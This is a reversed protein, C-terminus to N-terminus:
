RDAGSTQRENRGAGHERAASWRDIILEAAIYSIVAVFVGALVDVVWHYRLYVCSFILSVCSVSWFLVAAYRRRMMKRYRLVFMLCLLYLAAHMSPMCDTKIRELRNWAEYQLLYLSEYGTVRYLADIRVGELKQEFRPMREYKISNAPDFLYRPGKAPLYIFCVIAIVSAIVQALLAKNFVAREGKQFLYMLFVYPMVFLTYSAMLYEVLYPNLYDQLYITPQMWFLFEDARMLYLDVTDTKVQDSNQFLPINDYLMAMLLYPLYQFMDKVISAPINRTLGASCYQQYKKLNLLIHAILLGSGIWAFTIVHLSSFHFSSYDSLAMIALLILLSFVFWWVPNVTIFSYTRNRANM